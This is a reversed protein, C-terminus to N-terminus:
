LTLKLQQTLSYPHKEKLDKLAKIFPDEAGLIFEEDLLLADWSNYRTFIARYSNKIEEIEIPAASREFILKCNLSGFGRHSFTRELAPIYGSCVMIQEPNRATARTEDKFRFQIKYM